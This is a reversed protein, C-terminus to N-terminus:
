DPPHNGSAQRKRKLARATLRTNEDAEDPVGEALQNLSTELRQAIRICTTVAFPYRGREISSITKWHVGVLEALCEQTMEARLRAAAINRGIVRLIDTDPM